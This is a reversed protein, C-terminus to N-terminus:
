LVLHKIFKGSLVRGAGGGGVRGARGRGMGGQKAGKRGQRERRKLTEVRGIFVDYDTCNVEFYKTQLRSHM